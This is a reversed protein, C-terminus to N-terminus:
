EEAVIGFEAALARWSPEARLKEIARARLVYVSGVPKGLQRSITEEDLGDIYKLRLASLQQSARPHKHLFEASLLEFRARLEDAIVRSALDPQRHDPLGALELGAGGARAALRGLLDDQRRIARAADLLQQVAFALLAGPVRCRSFLTFTRAVARQSAEEAIDPYRRRAHDYLYQFLETYGLNQRQPGEVGSCAAHLAQIYVHIATRHPGAAPEASSQEFARRAWEERNLLRWPRQALLQDVAEQCERLLTARDNDMQPM